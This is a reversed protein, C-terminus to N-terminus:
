DKPGITWPLWRVTLGPGSYPKTCVAECGKRDGPPTPMVAQSHYGALAWEQSAGLNAAQSDTLSTKHIYILELMEDSSYWDATWSQDKAFYDHCLRMMQGYVVYNVSGSYHCDTGVQVSYGCTSCGPEYKKSFTERGGPGLESIDWSIAAGPLTVLNVCAVTRAASSWRAFASRVRALTESLADTIDPGCIPCICRKQGERASGCRCGPSCGVVLGWPEYGSEAPTFWCCTGGTPMCVQLGNRLCIETGPKCTIPVITRGARISRPRLGSLAM